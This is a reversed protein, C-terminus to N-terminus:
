EAKRSKLFKRKRAFKLENIFMEKPLHIKIYKPPLDTFEDPKGWQIRLPFMPILCIYVAKGRRDIYAGLWIDYWAFSLVFRETIKILTIM